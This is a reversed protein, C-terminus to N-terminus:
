SGAWKEPPLITVGVGHAGEGAQKRFRGQARNQFRERLCAEDAAAHAVRQGAARHRVDVEGRGVLGPLGQRGQLLGAQADDRGAKRM